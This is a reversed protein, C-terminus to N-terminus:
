EQKDSNTDEGEFEQLELRDKNDEEPQYLTGDKNFYLSFRAGSVHVFRKLAMLGFILELLLLLLQTVGFIINIPISVPQMITLYFHLAIQFLTFLLFAFTKPVKESLNGSWGILVRALEIIISAIFIIIFVIFFRQDIMDNFMRKKAIFLALTFIYFVISYYMHFYICM